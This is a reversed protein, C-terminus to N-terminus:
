FIWQLYKVPHRMERQLELKKRIPFLKIQPRGTYSFAAGDLLLKRRDIYMNTSSTAIKCTYKEQLHCKKQM